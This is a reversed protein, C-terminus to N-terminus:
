YVLCCKRCTFAPGKLQSEDCKSKCKPCIDAVHETPVFLYYWVTKGLCQSLQHAYQLGASNIAGDPDTLERFAWDELEATLLWIHYIHWAILSWSEIKPALDGFLNQVRYKPYYGACNGCYIIAKNNGFGHGRLILDPSDACRCTDEHKAWPTAIVSVEIPATLIDAFQEKITPNSRWSEFAHRDTFTCWIRLKPGGRDEVTQEYDRWILGEHYLTPALSGWTSCEVDTTPPHLVLQAPVDDTNM